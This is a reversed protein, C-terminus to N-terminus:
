RTIEDDRRKRWQLFIPQYPLLGFNITWTNSTDDEKKWPELKDRLRHGVGVSPKIDEPYEAEVEADSTPYFGCFVDEGEDPVIQSSKSHFVAQSKAPIYVSTEWVIHTGLKNEAGLPGKYEYDCPVGGKDVVGTAKAFHITSQVEALTGYAKQVILSHDFEMKSNGLNCMTFTLETTLRIRDKPVRVITHKLKLDRRYHHLEAIQDFENTLSSPFQRFPLFKSVNRAVEETLREKVYTDVTLALVVAIIFADGLGEMLKEVIEPVAVIQPAVLLVAALVALLALVLWFKM